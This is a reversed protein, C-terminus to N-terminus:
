ASTTIGTWVTGGTTNIYARTTTAAGDTRLYLSGQPATMSPVGSGFCIQPCTSGAGLTTFVAGGSTIDTNIAPIFGKLDSM